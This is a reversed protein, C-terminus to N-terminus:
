WPTPDAPTIAELWPLVTVCPFPPLARLPFPDQGEDRHGWIHVLAAGPQRPAM